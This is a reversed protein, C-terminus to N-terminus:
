PCEPCAGWTKKKAEDCIRAVMPDVVGHEAVDTPGGAAHDGAVRTLIEALWTQVAAKVAAKFAASAALAAVAAAQDMGAADAVTVAELATTITPEAAALAPGFRTAHVDEHAKVAALMYWPNGVINGLKTLNKAQACFNAATTNGGPGTVESQGALLTVQESFKGALATVVPKWTAGVKKAGMTVDISEPFTLGYDGGLAHSPPAGSAVSTAPKSLLEHGRDAAHPGPEVQAVSSRVARSAQRKAVAGADPAAAPTGAPARPDAAGGDAAAEDEPVLQLVVNFPVDDISRDAEMGGDQAKALLAGPRPREDDDEEPCTCAGACAGSPCRAVRNAVPATMGQRPEFGGVAASASPDRAPTGAGSLMRAVSHNGASRQLALLGAVSLSRPAAPRGSAATVAPAPDPAPEPQARELEDAYALESPM